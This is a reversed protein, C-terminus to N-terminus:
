EPAPRPGRAAADSSGTRRPRGSSSPRGVAFGTENPTGSVRASREATRPTSRWTQDGGDTVLPRSRPTGAITRGPREVDPSDTLFATLQTGGAYSGLSASEGGQCDACVTISRPSSLGYALQHGANKSVVDTRVDWTNQGPLTFAANAVSPAGLAVAAALVAALKLTHPSMTEM